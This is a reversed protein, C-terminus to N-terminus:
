LSISLTGQLERQAVRLPGPAFLPDAELTLILSPLSLSITPRRGAKYTVATLSSYPIFFNVGDSDFIEQSSKQRFEQWPAGQWDAAAGYAELSVGKQRAKEGISKMYADFRREVEDEGGPTVALILRRNTFILNFVYQFDFDKPGPEFCSPIISVIREGSPDIQQRQEILSTLMVRALYYCGLSFRYREERDRTRVVLLDEGNRDEVLDEGRVYLIEELSIRRSEPSEALIEAPNMTAYRLWPAQELGLRSRISSIQSCLEAPVQRSALYAHPLAPSSSASVEWFDRGSIGSEELAESIKEKSKDIAGTVEGGPVVVILGDGTIVLVMDKQSFIGGQMTGFPIVVPVEPIFDEPQSPAPIPGEVPQGCQECFRAGTSLAAGCATCFRPSATV